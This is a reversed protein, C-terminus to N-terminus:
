TAYFGSEVGQMSPLHLKPQIFSHQMFYTQFAQSLIVKVCPDPEHFRKRQVPDM